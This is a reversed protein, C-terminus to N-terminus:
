SRVTLNAQRSATGWPSHMVRQRKECRTAAQIKTKWEDNFQNVVLQSDSYIIIPMTPHHEVAYQLAERLALWEADNNTDYKGIDRRRITVPDTRGDECRISWYVGLVQQPKKKQRKARRKMVYGGDVFFKVWNPYGDPVPPLEKLAATARRTMLRRNVQHKTRQQDSVAEATKAKRGEASPKKQRCYRDSASRKLQAHTEPNQHLAHYQYQYGEM